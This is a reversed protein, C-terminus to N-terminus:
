AKFIQAFPIEKVEKVLIDPFKEKVLSVSEEGVIMASKAADVLHVVTDVDLPEGKYFNSRLDLSVPGESYEKGLLNEDCVALTLVGQRIHQKVIIRAM